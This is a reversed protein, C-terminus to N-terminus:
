FRHYGPHGYYGHAYYPHGYYRYGYGRVYYPHYYPGYYRHPYFAPGVYVAPPPPPAYGIYGVTGVYGPRAYVYGTRVWAHGGWHWRPYNAYGVHVGGVNVGVFVAADAPAPAVTAVAAGSAVLFALAAGLRPIKKLFSKVFVDKRLEPSRFM